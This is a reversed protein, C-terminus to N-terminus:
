SRDGEMGAMGRMDIGLGQATFGFHKAQKCFAGVVAASEAMVVGIDGGGAGCPKYVADMSRALDLLDGHGADFIGLDLSESFQALVGTYDNLADLVGAAIGTKWASLVNEAAGALAATTAGGAKGLRALKERTDIATGSWLFCSQLGAPWAVRRPQSDDDSRYELLGGFTSAAIDVGSGRGAQYERHIRRATPWVDRGNGNISKLAGALSVTVAASSGLGLKSGSATDFFARTDIEISVPPLSDGACHRWATEFLGLHRVAVDDQWDVCGGRGARFRWHGEALGPTRVHCYQDVSDEISVVARRDIAAVVAPAGFLVVYEGAIVAKGPASVCVPTM